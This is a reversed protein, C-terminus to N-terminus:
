GHSAQVRDPRKLLALLQWTVLGPIVIPVDLAGLPVLSHAHSHM